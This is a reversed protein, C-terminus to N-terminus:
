HCLRPLWFKWVSGRGARLTSSFRKTNILRGIAASVTRRAVAADPGTYSIRIGIAGSDHAAPVLSIKLDRTKMTTIIDELPLRQREKRYLDLNPQMIIGALSSRSLLINELRHIQNTAAETNGGQVATMQLEAESVYRPSRQWGFLGAVGLGAVAFAAAVRWHITAVRM